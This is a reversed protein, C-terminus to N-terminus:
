ATVEAGLARQLMTQALQDVLEPEHARAQALELQVTAQAQQAIASAEEAREALLAAATRQAEARFQAFTADAERRAAARAEEAQARLSKIDTEFQEIDAAIGNIYARREAIARGVPKLFIANLILLFVVLNVIQVVLTGDLSLLM